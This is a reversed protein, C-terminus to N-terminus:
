STVEARPWHQHVTYSAGVVTFGMRQYAMLAPRNTAQTAVRLRSVGECRSSAARSMATALGRGRFAGEVAVLDIVMVGDPREVVILFGALADDIEAVLLQDGRRGAVANGVWRAKLDNAAVDDIKPDRHFRSHRFGGRALAVLAPGDDPRASRIRPDSDADEFPERELTITTEVLYYGRACLWRLNEIANIPVRGWVFAADDSAIRGTRADIRVIRFSPCGLSPELFSDRELIPLIAATSLEPAIEATRAVSRM